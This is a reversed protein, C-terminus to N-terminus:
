KKPARQKGEKKGLWVVRVMIERVNASNAVFFTNASTILYFSSLVTIYETEIKSTGSEKKLLFERFLSRAPLFLKL